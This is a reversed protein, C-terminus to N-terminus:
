DNNLTNIDIALGQEILGFVDFHWELLKQIFGFPLFDLHHNNGKIWETVYREFSYFTKTDWDDAYDNLSMSVTEGETLEDFAIFTKGKHTIEKFLDSLPKLILKCTKIDYADSNEKTLLCYSGFLKNVGDLTWTKNNSIVDDSDDMTSTFKVEYPLYALHKLELKKM